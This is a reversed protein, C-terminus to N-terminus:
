VVFPYGVRDLIEATMIFSREDRKAVAPEPVRLGAVHEILVFGAWPAIIQSWILSAQHSGERTLDQVFQYVPAIEQSINLIDLIIQVTVQVVLVCWFVLLDDCVEIASLRGM